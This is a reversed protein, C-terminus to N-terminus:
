QCLLVLGLQGTCWCVWTGTKSCLQDWVGRQIGWVLCSCLLSGQLMLHCLLDLLSLHRSFGRCWLPQFVLAMLLSFPPQLVFIAECLFPYEQRGGGEAVLECAAKFNAM